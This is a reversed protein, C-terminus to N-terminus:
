PHSVQTPLVGAKLERALQHLELSLAGFGQSIGAADHLLAEFADSQNSAM